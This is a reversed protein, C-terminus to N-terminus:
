LGAELRRTLEEQEVRGLTVFRTTYGAKRVLLDRHAAPEAMAARLQAATVGNVQVQLGGQRFYGRLLAGFKGRDTPTRLLDPSVSIDLAQGGGFAAQDITTASAMLATHGHTARGPTSGVNKALPEGARRGDLSAGLLAGASLHAALTHFSPLYTVRERSHRAVAAAFRAALRRAMADVAPEGNGYKPLRRVAHLIDPREAYDSRAAAVLEPLTFRGEVFALQEIAYLADAVNVLGFAEVIVTRYRCGGLLRDLGRQRCDALLASVFPNPQERGHRATRAETEVCLLDIYQDLHAAVTEFLVEFDAYSDPTPTRLAFPAPHAFPEGGNLALELPLLVNVVSGWMDSWEQGPMMLGMCSNAVWQHVEDAPVGRRRLAARCPEEGYFTPQGMAFLDPDIFRALDEDALGDHVRLALIPGELRERQAVRVILESLPNLQDRGAEDAGGLNVNCAPDSFFSNLARFFEGLDAALASEPVGRALDALYLGFLYQDLRGLSLSWGALESIGVAVHVLWVAQLGETFTRAPGRPAARLRDAVGRLREGEDPAARRAASEAWRAYREAWDLLASLALWMAELYVRREGEAEALDASLDTLLGVVGRNVVQEYDVTTHAAGGDSPYSHYWQRLQAWLEPAPEAAPAPPLAEIRKLLRAQEDADACEWGFRTALREGPGVAIPLQQLVRAFAAAESLPVPRGTEERCAELRSVHVLQWFRNVDM